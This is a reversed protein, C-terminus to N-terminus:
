ADALASERVNLGKLIMGWEASRLPPWDPTAGGAAHIAARLIMSALNTADVPNEAAVALSIVVVGEALCADIAPDGTREDDLLHEMVRDLQQEIVKVRVDDSVDVPKFESDAPFVTGEMVVRFSLTSGTVNSEGQETGTMRGFWESM